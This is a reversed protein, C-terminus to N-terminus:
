AEGSRESFERAVREAIFSRVIEAQADGLRRSSDMSLYFIAPPYYTHLETELSVIVGRPPSGEVVISFGAIGYAGFFPTTVIDRKDMDAVSAATTHKGCHLHTLLRQLSAYSKLNRDRGTERM